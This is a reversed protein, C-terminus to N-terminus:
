AEMQLAMEGASRVGWAWARLEPFALLEAKVASAALDRGVKTGGPRPGPEM